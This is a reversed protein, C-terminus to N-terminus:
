FRQADGGGWRGGGGGGSATPMKRVGGGGEEARAKTGREVGNRDRFAVAAGRAYGALSRNPAPYTSDRFEFALGTSRWQRFHVFHIIDAYDPGSALLRMHYDWDYMNKRCDYREGYLTRQRADWLGDMDLPVSLAWSRLVDVLEDRDKYKLLSLDFLGCLRVYEQESGAGSKRGDALVVDALLRGRDALYAATGDRLKSNGFVELFTEM